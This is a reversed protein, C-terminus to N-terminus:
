SERKPNMSLERQFWAVLNRIGRFTGVKPKWGLKQEAKSIDSIYVKQDGTRWNKFEVKCRKGTVEQLLSLLELLSLTNEPGGGINFVDGSVKERTKYFMDFAQVLDDVFLVDRVQKGDGYITLRKDQLASIVFHAVWGQDENGFQRHGYICSMRFACTDLGYSKSYDQTYIDGAIKSCGYPTHACLNTPFIEPIGKEFEKDAFVYRTEREIIPIDNVNEGYVKNTSCYAVAPDSRSKRAAELVNFTGLANTDFDTVPDDMSTTVAVQAATHIIFDVYTAAKEIQRTNRIDGKAMIINDYNQKLYNWNYLIVRKSRDAKALTQARSLNDIVTVDHGSKAYFEAVHSGVFGAGGTVLVNM